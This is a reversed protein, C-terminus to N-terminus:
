VAEVHWRHNTIALAAAEANAQDCAAIAAARTAFTRGLTWTSEAATHGDIVVVYSATRAAPATNSVM